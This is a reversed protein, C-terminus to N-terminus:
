TYNADPTAVGEFRRSDHSHAASLWFYTNAFGPPAANAQYGRPTIVCDGSHVVHVADIQGPKLYSLHLGFQPAPMDFYFYAEELDKEHEHPPWSSWGGPDSRSIGTMIRSAPTDPDCTMFVERRVPPLGHIQHIAGLPLDPNFPRVYFAGIGEYIGGGIYLIADSMAAIGAHLGAPLYFSDLRGLRTLTGDAELVVTGEIVVASLELRDDALVHNQGRALNLRFFWLSRCASNAPSVVTHLGPEIPSTYKWTAPDDYNPVL